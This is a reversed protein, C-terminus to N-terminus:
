LWKPQTIPSSVELGDILAAPNQNVVVSHRHTEPLFQQEVMMDIFTLFPQFYGGVDLLGVPKDFYGLQNLTWAEVFEETTGIGGPLAIFADAMQAMRAKRAHMDPTIEHSSLQPHLHDLNALRETIVGHVCGDSALAADALSGMLGKNTGGFVIEIGRQAIETGLRSAAKVFTDGRGVNSGCFVAIRTLKRM